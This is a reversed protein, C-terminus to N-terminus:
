EPVKVALEAPWETQKDVKVWAVGPLGTKVLKLHKHLLGRDIQAKVRFMLKQRESETEVTKPTFQATSAVFSITAPIVYQPAADLIIRADEGMALRGAAAQPLFFTMYVDSLDVLNLVKGGGALVEGPQAIRYQVRGDRPATLQSDAIDAEIRAITAEAAAVTSRAGIVQAKAADIAAQAASVQAKAAEVAAQASRVRARDDDLEQISSAGEASLTESRALRRQAADLESERQAVLAQTARKDSERLAVQAQAAVASNLAQQYQARAEDRQANLVDIQMRALLQGKEVFDGENVLIDEVRGPLKTAVDIEVAEIRGNGSALGKTNDDGNMAQWAYLGAAALAAIIVIPVIKKVRPNM